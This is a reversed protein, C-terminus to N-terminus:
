FKQIIRKFVKHPLFDANIEIVKYDRNKLEKLIPKTRNQFENLRIKIAEPNDFIRKRLKSGCIPCYNLKELSLVPSACLSCVLRASNRKISTGPKVKLFFIKINKKGYEEELIDILGKNKSDGFAEYITRPSGSFVVDLNAKSIKKVIKSIVEKLSWSSTVLKGTDFLKRERKIIKNKQLKPDHVIQEIFKGTDFNVFGKTRALLDGQIGKGAGPLGLFIVATKM